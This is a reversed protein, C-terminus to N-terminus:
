KDSALSHSAYNQILHIQQIPLPVLYEWRPNASPVGSWYNIANDFIPWSLFGLYRKEHDTGFILGGKLWSSDFKCLCDPAEFSYFKSSKYNVGKSTLEPWKSFESLSDVAFFSTYRSPADPFKERRVLEFIFEILISDINSKQKDISRSSCVEICESDNITIYFNELFPCNSSLYSAGHSSVGDTFHQVFLSTRSNEPLDTLPHLSVTQNNALSGNRDCHYLFM